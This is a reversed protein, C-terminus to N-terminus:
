HLFINIICGVVSYFRLSYVTLDIKSHSNEKAKLELDEESLNEWGWGLTTGKDSENADGQKTTKVASVM